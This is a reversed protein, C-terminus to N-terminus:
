TTRRSRLAALVGGAIVVVGALLVVILGMGVSAFGYDTDLGAIRRNIDQLDVIGIGLLAVGAIIAGYAALKPRGSRVVLAVGLLVALFGLVLTLMGDGGGDLGSRSITGVLAMWALHRM